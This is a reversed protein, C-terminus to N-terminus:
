GGILGYTFVSESGLREREGERETLGLGSM